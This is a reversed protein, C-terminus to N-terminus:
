EDDRAVPVASLARRDEVSLCERLRQQEVRVLSM